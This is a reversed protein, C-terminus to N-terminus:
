HAGRATNTTPNAAASTDHEFGAVRSGVGAPEGVGSSAILAADADDIGAVDDAPDAEGVGVGDADGEADEKRGAVGDLVAEGDADRVRAPVTSTM